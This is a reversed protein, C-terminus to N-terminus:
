FASRSLLRQIWMEISALPLRYGNFLAFLRRTAEDVFPAIAAIPTELPLEVSTVIQDQHATGFSTITVLPYAWPELRRGQLKTWQFAFGLTATDMDWGNARVLSLGVALAEAVRLIVVIPDLYTEPKVRGSIDDQLARRLFFRGRPDIRWYDFRNWTGLSLILSEWGDDIVIPRNAEEVFTRSNAWVPWGAFNPNSAMTTALFTSDVVADLREPDAILAVNWTGAELLWKDEARISRRTLAREFRDRGEALLEVSKERLTPPPPTRAADLLTLINAWSPGTM